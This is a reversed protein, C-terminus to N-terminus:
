YSRYRDIQAKADKRAARPSEPAAGSRNYQVGERGIPLATM